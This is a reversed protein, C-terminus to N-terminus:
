RCRGKQGHGGQQKRVNSPPQHSFPNNCVFGCLQQQDGDKQCLPQPLDTSHSYHLRPCLLPALSHHLNDPGTPHPHPDFPSSCPSPALFTFPPPPPYFLNSLHLPQKKLIVSLLLMMFNAFCLSDFPFYSFQRRNNVLSMNIAIM